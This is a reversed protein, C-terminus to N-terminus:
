NWEDFKEINQGDSTFKIDGDKDTRLIKINLRELRRIIRLSPHGYSNDAGTLIVAYKPGVAELFKKSSADSSGQHAIKIVDARLDHIAFTKLIREESPMEADGMFMFSSQGYNLKVVISSNNINEIHQDKLNKLPHLIKLNTKSNIKLEDLCHTKNLEELNNIDLVTYDASSKRQGCSYVIRSSINKEKLLNLFDLYTKSGYAIGTLWVQGAQYKRLVDILGGLHDAHPHTSIILDIYRDGKEMNQSLKKLAQGDEEGGDILIQKKDATEIFISDAEGIDFFIVRLRNDIEQNVGAVQGRNKDKVILDVDLKQVLIVVAALILVILIKKDKFM